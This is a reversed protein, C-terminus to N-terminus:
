LGLIESFIGIVILTLYDESSFRWDRFLVANKALVFAFMRNACLCTVSSIMNVEQANAFTGGWKEPMQDKSHAEM